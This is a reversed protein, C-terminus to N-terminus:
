VNVFEAEPKRDFILSSTVMENKEEAIEKM